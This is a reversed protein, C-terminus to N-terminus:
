DFSIEVVYFDLVGDCNDEMCRDILEDMTMEDYEEQSLNNFCDLGYNRITDETEQRDFATYIACDIRERLEDPMKGEFYDIINEAEDEKAQGNVEQFLEFEEDTMEMTCSGGVNGGGCGCLSTWFDFTVEM